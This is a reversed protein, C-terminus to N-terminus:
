WPEEDDYYEADPYRGGYRPPEECGNLIVDKLKRKSAQCKLPLVEIAEDPDTPLSLLGGPKIAREIVAQGYAIWAIIKDADLTSEHQRVEVTGYQPFCSLNLSKYREAYATMQQLNPAREADEVEQEYWHDSWEGQIRHSATLTDTIPQARYWTRVLRKMDDASFEAVEHHVHLGCQRGPVCGLSSLVRCVTRIQDRDQWLLPPSVVEWGAVSSDPVVKWEGDLVEHSYGPARAPIGADQLRHVIAASEIDTNVELEIGFRRGHEALRAAARKAERRRRTDERECHRCIPRPNGSPYPRFMDQDVPTIQYRNRCSRCVRFQPLLAAEEAPLASRGYINAICQRRWSEDYGYSDPYQTRMDDMRREYIERRRQEVQRLDPDLTSMLDPTPQANLDVGTFRLPM